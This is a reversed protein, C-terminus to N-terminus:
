LGKLKALEAKLENVQDELAKISEIFIGSFGNYNVSLIGNNNKILMPMHPLTEQAIVGSGAEGTDIRDFYVGRLNRMIALPNSITQVNTKLTADSFATIDGSALIAGGVYLNGGISVGGTASFSDGSVVGDTSISLGAVGTAFSLQIGPTATADTAGFYVYGGSSSYRSAVAFRENVATFLSRGGTATFSAATVNGAVYLNGGIGVGGVVQLAGTTTSTAATSTAVMVNGSSDLRIGSSAYAWPAIVFAGTPTGAAISASTSSSSSYIIGSDGAVVIANNDGQRNNPRFYAWGGGVSSSVYIGDTGTADTQVHLKSSPSDTGVGVNGNSNIRVKETVSLPAVTSSGTGFAIGGQNNNGNFQMWGMWTADIKQQIRSGATTWDNGAFDRVMSFDLHSANTKTGSLRQIITQSGVGTPLGVSGGVSLINGDFTLNTSGAPINSADKYIVQNASGNVPGTPGTPGTIGSTNTWKGSSYVLLQNDAPSTIAVDTLDSAALSVAGTKTNVSTVGGTVTIIGTAPDYSGSGTVSIAGRARSDAYYLNTGEALDTTSKTALKSDFASDVRTDTYYLNTGEALDTTSKDSFYKNVVGETIDDINFETFDVALNLLNGADDYDKSLGKGAVILNDLRNDVRENTYYLNTGEAINTTTKTALRLDFASNARTNTYYLNINGESLEDTTFTGLSFNSIYNAINGFNDNTKIFATRLNDGTGDNGVNGVFITATTFIM